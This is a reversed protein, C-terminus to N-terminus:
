PLHSWNRRTRIHCIAPQTVGHRRALISQSDTSSRIDAIQQETLKHNGAETGRPGRGRGKAMKDKQNDQHTGLWLHEPEICARNDCSHCVQFGKPIQTKNADEWSARHAALHKGQWSFSGYGHSRYRIWNRCGTEPDPISFSNLKERLTM